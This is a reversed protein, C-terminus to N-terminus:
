QKVLVTGVVVYYKNEGSADDFYVIGQDKLKRLHALVKPHSTYQGFKIGYAESAVIKFNNKKILEFIKQPNSLSSWLLAVHTGAKLEANLIKEFYRSGDVGGDVAKFAPDKIDEPIAVYPPNSAIADNVGFNEKPWQTLYAELDQALFDYYENLGFSAVNDRSSQLAQLNNDVAVVKLAPNFFMELESARNDWYEPGQRVAKAEALYPQEWDLIESIEGRLRLAQRRAFNIQSLQKLRRYESIIAATTALSNGAGLDHIVLPLDPFERLLKFIIDKYAVTDSSSHLLGNHITNTDMNEVSLSNGDYPIPLDRPNVLKAEFFLFEQSREDDLTFFPNKERLHPLKQDAM